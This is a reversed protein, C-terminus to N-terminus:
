HFLLCNKVPEPAPQKSNDWVSSGQEQLSSQLVAGPRPSSTIDSALLAAGNEQQVALEEGYNSMNTSSSPNSHNSTDM